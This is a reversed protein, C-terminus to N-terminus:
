QKNDGFWTDWLWSRYEIRTNEQPCILVEEYEEPTLLQRLEEKGESAVVGGATDVFCLGPYMVCWWNGGNKKGIDVRLAEYEGAPFLFDGYNKIPFEEVTLYAHIEYDYGANYIVTKGIEEIQELNAEMIDRAEEKSSVGALEPGLAELIADRVLLKLAQDEESDSNARVHFRIVEKTVDAGAAEEPLYVSLEGESEFAEQSVTMYDMDLEGNLMAEVEQISSESYAALEEAKGKMERYNNMMRIGVGGVIPAILLASLATKYLNM